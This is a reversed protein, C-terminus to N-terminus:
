IWSDKISEAVHRLECSDKSLENECCEVIMLIMYGYCGYFTMVTVVTVVTVMVNGHSRGMLGHGM